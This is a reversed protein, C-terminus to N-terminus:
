VRAATSTCRTATRRWRTYTAGGPKQWVITLDSGHYSLNNVTFHDYGM